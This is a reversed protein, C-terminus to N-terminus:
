ETDEESSSEVVEAITEIQRRPPGRPASEFGDMGKLTESAISRSKIAIFKGIRRQEVTASETQLDAGLRKLLRRLRREIRDSAIGIQTAKSLLQRTVRDHSFLEITEQLVFNHGGYSTFSGFSTDSTISSTSSWVPHPSLSPLTDSDRHSSSQTGDSGDSGYRTGFNCVPCHDYWDINVSGCKNCYWTDSPQNPM